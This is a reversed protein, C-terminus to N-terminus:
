SLFAPPGRVSSTISFSSLQPLLYNYFSTIFRSPAAIDIIAVEADGDKAFQFECIACYYSEHLVTKNQNSKERQAAYSFTHTHFTKVANIFVLVLLLFAASLKQIKGNRLFNMLVFTFSIKLNAVNNYNTCYRGTM